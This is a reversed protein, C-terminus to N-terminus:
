IGSTTGLTNDVWENGSSAGEQAADFFGNAAAHNCAFRNFSADRVFFGFWGNADAVNERLVNDSPQPNDVFPSLDFGYLVNSSSTNRALVNGSSSQVSFGAQNGTAVNERLDNRNSFILSYGVAGNGEASNEKFTNVTGRVAAFGHVGNGNAHNDVLTNGSSVELHFGRDYNNVAANRRLTNNRADELLVGYDFGTVTCNKVTAARTGPLHIGPGSGAGNGVVSYGGCDLTIGNKALVITGNHNETLKTNSTIVLTGSSASAAPALVFPLVVLAALGLLNYRLRM